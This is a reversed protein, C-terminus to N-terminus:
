RSGFCEEASQGQIIKTILKGQFFTHREHNTLFIRVTDAPIFGDEHLCKVARESKIDLFSKVEDVSFNQLTVDDFLISEKGTFLLSKVTDLSDVFFYKGMSALISKAMETKGLGGQGQIILAMEGKLHKMWVCIEEPINFASLPYKSSSKSTGQFVDDRFQALHGKNCKQIQKAVNANGAYNWLVPNGADREKGALVWFEQENTIKHHIIYDSFESFDLIRRKKQIAAYIRPCWHEKEEHAQLKNEEAMKKMYDEENLQMKKLM